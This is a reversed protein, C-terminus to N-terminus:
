LKMAITVGDAFPILSITVRTDKHLKMNLNHIARTRPNTAIKKPDCVSGNLLVNDVVILGGQRLLQLSKEYYQDYETKDADIFALDFSEAEGAAILEDLTTLASQIKLEVKSEVGAEQFYRDYDVEKMFKDTVDCAVVKGDSPLAMAMSLTNYGTFTGIEIVKKAKILEILLRMLQAEDSSCLMDGLPLKLTAKRLSTLVSPERIGHETVYKSVPNNEESIKFLSKNRRELIRSVGFGAVASTLAIGVAGLFLKHDALLSM